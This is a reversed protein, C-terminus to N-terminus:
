KGPLPHDKMSRGIAAAVMVFLRRTLEPRDSEDKGNQIFDIKLCIDKQHFVGGQVGHAEHNMSIGLRMALRLADGDDTLPNWQEPGGAACLRIFGPAMTQKRVRYGAAKAALELLKLDNM